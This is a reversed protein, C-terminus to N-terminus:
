RYSLLVDLLEEDNDPISANSRAPKPQKRADPTLISVLSTEVQTTGEAEFSMLKPYHGLNKFETFQQFNWAYTKGGEKWEVRRIGKLEDDFFLLRSSEESNSGVVVIAIDTPLRVLYIDPQIM